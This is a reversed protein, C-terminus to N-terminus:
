VRELSRVVKCDLRWVKWPPMVDRPCANCIWVWAVCSTVSVCFEADADEDEDASSSGPDRETANLIM